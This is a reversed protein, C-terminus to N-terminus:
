PTFGALRWLEGPRYSRGRAVVLTIKRTDRIDPLPEGRVVILDARKGGAVTGLEAERGMGQAPVLTASQLAEMPTFGAEVYLEMERHLSHGIVSQDTGAVVPVGRRH